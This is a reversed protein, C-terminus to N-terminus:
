EVGQMSRSKRCKKPFSASSAFILHGEIGKSRCTFHKVQFNLVSFAIVFKHIDFLISIKAGLISFSSHNDSEFFCIESFEIFIPLGAVLFM